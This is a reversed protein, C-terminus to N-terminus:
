SASNAMSLSLSVQQTLVCMAGYIAQFVFATTEPFYDLVDYGSREWESPKILDYILAGQQNFNREGSEM